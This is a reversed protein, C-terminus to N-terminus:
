AVWGSDPQAQVRVRGAFAEAEAERPKRVFVRSPTEDLGGLHDEIEVAHARAGANVGAATAVAVMANRGHSALGGHVSAVM